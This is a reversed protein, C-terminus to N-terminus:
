AAPSSGPIAQPQNGPLPAPTVLAMLAQTAEPSLSKGNQVSQILRSALDDPKAIFLKSFAREERMITAILGSLAEPDPMLGSASIAQLAQVILQFRAAADAQNDVSVQVSLRLGRYLEERSAIAPFGTKELCLQEKLAAIRQDVAIPDPPPAVQGTMAAQTEVQMLEDTVAQRVQADIEAEMVKSERRGYVTPWVAHPGRRRIVDEPKEEQLLMEALAKRFRHLAARVVEQKDSTAVSAGQNATAIATATTRSDTVGLAQEPVRAMLRMMREDDSRDFAAPDYPAQMWQLLQNIPVGAKGPIIKIRGPAPLEIDEPKEIADSGFGRPISLWRQLEEESAKRNWRSQIPAQLETDSRGYWCSPDDNFVIVHTPFWQESQRKPIWTDAPYELGDLLWYVRGTRRDWREHILYKREDKDNESDPRPDIRQGRRKAKPQKERVGYEDCTACADLDDPHVGEFVDGDPGTGILRYPWKELIEARTKIYDFNHWRADYIQAFSKVEPSVRFRNLPVVEARPGAWVELESGANLTEELDLKEQWEADSEEIEGWAALQTLYALRQGNDQQDPGRADSLCDTRIDRQYTLKVIGARFWIGQSIWSRLTPVMDNREIAEEQEQALTQGFAALVPDAPAEEFTKGPPPV